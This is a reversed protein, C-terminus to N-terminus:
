VWPKTCHNEVEGAPVGQCAM